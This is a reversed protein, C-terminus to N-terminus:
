SPGETAQSRPTAISHRPLWIIAIVAAALAFLPLPSVGDPILSSYAEMRSIRSLAPLQFGGLFTRVVPDIVGLGREVDRYMAMCWALAVSFFAIMLVARRPLRILVIAAPVFMFPFMPTMYRIGTNFQLRTYNSGSFFLWFIGFLSLMFALEIWPLRFPGRRNAWVSIIALLFLPCSVFFGFRYDFGLMTFLEFQPLGYGQYGLDIWEVPPMWHQGPFFLHGFSVWQYFWLMCLPPLAGVIYMLGHKFADRWSVDLIRKMVCYCLMAAFIVIGSYDFLIATGGTLGCLFARWFVPQKHEAHFNWMVLFGAFAIHGLMLNHNLFGTRFFVPTGFAYLVALWLATRNSQFIHRLLYFMVVVGLASSPAMCFAHMVFAGLGIKIDLGRRWAEAYFERAMPWNSHYAPPDTQGSAKRLNQVNEVIGDIVPRAIAYPIAAVMSAGPNNGIHWGYGVKHFLDPHMNAYEDVRFSLHDGLALAPYIERVINTAFHLGYIIWCTLFLRIAISRSSSDGDSLSVSQHLQTRHM